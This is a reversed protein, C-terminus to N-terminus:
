IFIDPQGGCPPPNPQSFRDSYKWGIDIQSGIKLKEITAYTSPIPKNYDKPNLFENIGFITVNSRIKSKAVNLAAGLGMAIGCGLICVKEKPSSPDLKALCVDDVVTYERFTYTGLFYHISTTKGIFRSRGESLM